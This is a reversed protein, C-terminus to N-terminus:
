RVYKILSRTTGKYKRMFKLMGQKNYVITAGDSAWLRVGDLGIGNPIRKDRISKLTQRTVGLRSKALSTLMEKESLLDVETPNELSFREVLSRLADGPPIGMFVAKKQFEEFAKVDSKETMRWNFVRLVKEGRM